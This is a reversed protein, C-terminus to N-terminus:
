DTWRAADEPKGWATYAEALLERVRAVESEVADSDGRLFAEVKLLEAVAEAHQGAASLTRAYNTRFPFMILRNGPIGNEALDINRRAMAVAEGHQGVKMMLVALSNRSILTQRHDEGALEELQALASQSIVLAEAERDLRELANAMAMRCQLLLIPNMSDENRELIEVAPLITALADGFRELYLQNVALGQRAILTDVHEQGFAAECAALLDLRVAHADEYRSQQELVSARTLRIAITKPHAPGWIHIAKPVLEQTLADARSRDGLASACLARNGRQTLARPSDALGMREMAEVGKALLADAEAFQSDAMLANSHNTRAVEVTDHGATHHDLWADLVARTTEIQLAVDGLTAARAGRLEMPRMRLWLPVEGARQQGEELRAISRDAAEIDGLDLLVEALGGHVELARLEDDVVGEYGAVAAELHLRADAQAGLARFTSGVTEHLAARVVPDLGSSEFLETSAGALIDLVLVDRGVTDPNASALLRNLFANIEKARDRETVAVARADDARGQALEARERADDARVFAVGTGVAAVLTAVFALGIGAVLGRHRAALKQLQYWATPPRAAIPEDGLWRRVDGAFADVTPYRRAPDRELAVQLIVELDGRLDKKIDGAARPEEESLKLAVKPLSLGDLILPPEGTLLKFLLVGLAYVDSRADVKDPEGLVQEPSMYALTGVIEGATTVASALPDAARAIGFDLVHPQCDADVLINDPKLDRHIVGRQHAHAMADAVRLFLALRQRLDLGMSDAAQLLPLGNVKEMAFWSVKPGEEGIREVGAELVSAIGAHNLRGLAEIEWEFRREAGAALFGPRLVKIAVTRHPFEQVADYVRGMGGEGIVSRLQYGGITTGIEPAPVTFLETAPRELFDMSGTSEEGLLSEVETRLAADGACKEDLFEARKKAPLELADGFLEKVRNWDPGGDPGGDPGAPPDAPPETAM